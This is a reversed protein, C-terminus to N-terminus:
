RRGGVDVATEFSADFGLGQAVRRRYKPDLEAVWGTGQIVGKLSRGDVRELRVEGQELALFRTLTRSVPDALLPVVIAEQDLTAFSTLSPAVVKYTGPARPSDGFIVLVCEVANRGRGGLVVSAHGLGEGDRLSAGAGGAM